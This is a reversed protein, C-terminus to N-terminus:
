MLYQNINNELIQKQFIKLILHLGKFIYYYNEQKRVVKSKRKLMMYKQLVCM